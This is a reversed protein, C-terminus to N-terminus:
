EEWEDVCEQLRSVFDRLDDIDTGEIVLSDSDQSLVIAVNGDDLTTGYSDQVYDTVDIDVNTPTSWTIRSSM